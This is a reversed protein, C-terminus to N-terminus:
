DKDSKGQVEQAHAQAGIVSFIFYQLFLFNPIQTKVALFIGLHAALLAYTGPSSGFFPAQEAIGSGLGGIVIGTIYVVAVRLSGLYGEQGTEM